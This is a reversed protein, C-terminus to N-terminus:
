RTSTLSPSNALARDLERRFASHRPYRSRVAEVHAPGHGGACALAEATAVVLTAAQRYRSRQKGEVIAAVRKEAETQATALWRTRRRQPVERRAVLDLLLMGLPQPETGEREDFAAEFPEGFHSQPDDDLEALWRHLVTEIWGPDAPAASSAALLYPLLVRGPDRWSGTTDLLTTAEEIRDALLLLEAMLWEDPRGDDKRKRADAAVRGLVEDACGLTDAMGYLLRLRRSGPEAHWAHERASLVAEDDGRAAAAGAAREAIRARVAGYAPLCELAEHAADEAQPGRGDALLADIWDLYAEAQGFGSSRALEALAAPGGQLQAAETLLRRIQWDTGAEARERLCSVWEPLFADLGPLDYALAERVAALTDPGHGYPLDETWAVTLDNAREDMPTTETEYYARLYRAGAEALDTAVMDPAPQPGCFADGQEELAFAGLLRGYAARAVGLRGDLFVQQARAFLADMEGAWSEDGWAREEHLEDDWGWGDYYRGSGVAAVFADIDTLLPHPPAPWSTDVAGPGGAAPVADPGDAFAALFPAREPGPLTAAYSLVAARIRDAPLAELREQLSTLFRRLSPAAM